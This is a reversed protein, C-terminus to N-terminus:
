LNTYTHMCTYAHLHMYINTYIQIRTCTRLCTHKKTHHVHTIYIHICTYTCMHVHVHTCASSTDQHNNSDSFMLNDPGLASNVGGSRGLTSCRGCWWPQSCVKTVMEPTLLGDELPQPSPTPSPSGRDCKGTNQEKTVRPRTNQFIQVILLNIPFMLLSSELGTM